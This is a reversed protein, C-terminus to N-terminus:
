AVQRALLSWRLSPQGYVCTVLTLTNDHSHNLNALDNESIQSISVVEYVRTGMTTEYIIRDGHRLTWIGAFFSGQGRNHSALAINGDWMSTYSFHGVFSDLTSLAVGPMVSALRNNLAPITIRGIAGDNFPTVTTVRGTQNTEQMPTHTITVGSQSGPAEWPPNANSVPGGHPAGGGSNGGSQTVSTSALFGGAHTGDASVNVGSEGPQLAFVSEEVAVAHSANPNNNDRPAFPNAQNTPFEGSYFGTQSGHSPPLAASHRDRRINQTHDPAANSTTPRGWQDYPFTTEFQYQPAQGPQNAAQAATPTLLMILALATVAALSAAARALIRSSRINQMVKRWKKINAHSHNSLYLCIRSSRYAM